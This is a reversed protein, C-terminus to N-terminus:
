GPGSSKAKVAKTGPIVTLLPEIPQHIQYYGNVPVIQGNAIMGQLTRHVATASSHTSAVLAAYTQPQQCILKLLHTRLPAKRVPNM